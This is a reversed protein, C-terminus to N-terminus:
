KEIEFYNEWKGDGVWWITNNEGVSSSAKIVNWVKQYVRLAMYELIYLFFSFLRIQKKKQQWSTELHKRRWKQWKKKHLPPHPPSFIHIPFDLRFDRFQFKISACSSSILVFHRCCFIMQHFIMQWNHTVAIFHNKRENVDNFTNIDM